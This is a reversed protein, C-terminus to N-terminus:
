APPLRAPSDGAPRDLANTFSFQYGPKGDKSVPRVAYNIRAERCVAEVNRLWQQQQAPTEGETFLYQQTHRGVAEDQFVKDIGGM